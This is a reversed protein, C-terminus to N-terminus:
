EQRYFDLVQEDLRRDKVHLPRALYVQHISRCRSLATYLQGHAFCGNGRNFLVADFTKGQSKHVTIAYGLILPIQTYSGVTKEAWKSTENDLHYEIKPWTFPEIIQTFGLAPFEVEVQEQDIIRKVWGIQGNVLGLATNLNCVLMVKAGIKLSLIEPVPLREAGKEAFIGNFVAHFEDATCDIADLESTNIKDADKNLTCIAVADRPVPNSEGGIAKNNLWEIAKSVRDMEESARIVELFRLSTADKQRHFTQLTITELRVPTIKDKFCPASFFYPSGYKTLLEAETQQELVPPLQFLDGVLRIKVGGFPAGKVPGYRKLIESVAHFLDVRVMSVEDLILLELKKCKRKWRALLSPQSFWQELINDDIIRAVPIGFFSHITQGEILLAAVGTPALRVINHKSKAMWANVLSTKGTGAPGTLFVAPSNSELAALAEIAIPDPTLGAALLLQEWYTSPGEEPTIPTPNV